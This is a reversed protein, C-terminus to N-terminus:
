RKSLCGRMWDLSQELTRSPDSLQWVLLKHKWRGVVKGGEKIGLMEMIEKGDALPMQCVNELGLKVVANEVTTFLTRRMELEIQKHKDASDDDINIPYYLLTSIMLAVRWWSLSEAYKKEKINIDRLLLGTQVRLNATKESAKGAANGTNSSETLLPILSRFGESARHLRGVNTSGTGKGRIPLLLASHLYLGRQTDHISSLGIKNLLNWAADLYAVCLSDSVKPEKPPHFVVWFLQFRCVDMMAQVPRNGSMILNIENGIRDRSIKNKMADRVQDSAAAEKLREDLEFGFRASFRIARLVRLPDDLFTEMPHLPTIIKGQKLDTIGRGTFDEVVKEKINYFMSNITLDRRYADEKPSGFEVRPICTESSVLNVFDIKVGFVRMIGTTFHKSNEPNSKVVGVKPQKKEKLFVSYENIKDCFDNGKMNDLAIDIDNSEKGLLKDRVWGGAVRLQTQLNHHDVVRLLRDFIQMEKDTLEIKDKLQICLATKTSSSM